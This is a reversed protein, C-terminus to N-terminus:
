RGRVADRALQHALRQGLTQGRRRWEFTIDKDATAAYLEDWLAPSWRAKRAQQALRVIAEHDSVITSPGEAMKAAEVIARLEMEQSTTDDQRGSSTRVIVAAWAGKRTQDNCTGDPFIETRATM